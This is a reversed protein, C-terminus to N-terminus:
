LDVIRGEVLRVVRDADAAIAQDHTVMVITLNQRRNLSRLIDMIERGTVHDLNGTPEDALLVDPGTVLARAIAARQMEGGSLERPKHKLRHGLGVLKLLQTAERRYQRRRRLYGFATEAIMRPALVNELTTLEPLLHYFQFIMGFRHNRLQDRHAAALDDIREDEFYIAGENPADLTGLLHLLTSKGCGSQGVIALFEGPRVGLSAGRLVPIEIDAKFYSKKVNIAVLQYGRITGSPPAVARGAPRPRPQDTPHGGQASAIRAEDGLPPDQETTPLAAATDKSQSMAPPKKELQAELSLQPGDPLPREELIRPGRPSPADPPANSPRDVGPGSRSNM